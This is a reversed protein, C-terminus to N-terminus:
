INGRFWCTIGLVFLCTMADASVTTWIRGYKLVGALMGKYPEPLFGMVMGLMGQPPAKGQELFFRSSQLVVEVTAFIWFFRFNSTSGGLGSSLASLDRDLKTGSFTTTFAVYIGLSLAFLAHVIRWLYAYPETVVANGEGPMGLNPMGPFAPFGNAGEGPAGGMMQQMMKMIPDDAGPPGGMGDM